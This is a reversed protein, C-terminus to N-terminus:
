KGQRKRSLISTTFYIIITEKGQGLVRDIMVIRIEDRTKHKKM